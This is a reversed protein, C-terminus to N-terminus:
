ATVAVNLGTMARLSGAFWRVAAALGHSYLAPPSLEAALSRAVEISDALTREVRELNGKLDPDTANAQASGVSLHSFVLLQQLNDHLLSAIRRRERQEVLTLELALQRLQATREAVRLELERNMRLIKTESRKREIAYHLARAILQGGAQGKVLFDQVGHRIAEFGMAEDNAGTLVVIPLEPWAARARVVTEQGTCDPLSLDLLVVDFPEARARAIAEGLTAACVVTHREPVAGSLHAQLLEADSPSDEVLLMRFPDSRLGSM